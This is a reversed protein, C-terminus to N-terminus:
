FNLTEGTASYIYKVNEDFQEDKFKNSVIIFNFEKLETTLNKILGYDRNLDNGVFIINKKTKEFRLKEM